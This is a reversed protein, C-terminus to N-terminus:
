KRNGSAHNRTWCPHRGKLRDTQPAAFKELLKFTPLVDEYSSGGIGHKAWNAFDTPRARLAVCANVASHGGLVKGRPTPLKPTQGTGRSTYGLQTAPRRDQERGV